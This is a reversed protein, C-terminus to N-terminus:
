RHLAHWAILTVVLAGAAYAALWARRATRRARDVIETAVADAEEILPAAEANAQEFAAGQEFCAHARKQLDAYRAYLDRKSLRRLDFSANV